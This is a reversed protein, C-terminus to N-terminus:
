NNIPHAICARSFWPADPYDQVKKHKKITFFSRQLIDARSLPGVM